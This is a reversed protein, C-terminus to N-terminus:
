VEAKKNYLTMGIVCIPILKANNADISNMFASSIDFHTDDIRKCERFSINNGGYTNVYNLNADYGKLSFSSSCYNTETSKESKCIWLLLDYKDSNLEITQQNFDENINDNEWLISVDNISNEINAQLENLNKDSLPTEGNIFNIKKM